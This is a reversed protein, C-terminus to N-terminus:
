GMKTGSAYYAEAFRVIDPAVEMGYDLSMKLLERVKAWDVDQRKLEKNVSRFLERIEKKIETNENLLDIKSLIRIGIENDMADEEIYDNEWYNNGDRIFRAKEKTSIIKLNLLMGEVTSSERLNRYEESNKEYIDKVAEFCNNHWEIYKLTHRDDETFRVGKKILEDLKNIKNHGM